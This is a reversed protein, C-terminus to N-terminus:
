GPKKELSKVRRFLADLQTFRATNRRWERVPRAPVVSGYVGAERISGTVGTMGLLTVDDAIEIHDAIGSLGGIMCRRGIRSSGAVMVGAALATDDGIEVNHAVHVQDDLKANRGIVTNKLAGRDITCGAGIEAAEGVHVGGIQPVKRWGEPGPAFGFGDAGLLAGPHVIVGDAIRTGAGISVNNAIRCHRGIEVGPGIVTCAGVQTGRGLRAGAEVVANAGVGVGDDLQADSAVVASAHIGRAIEPLPHLAMAAAAFAYYPDEVVLAVSHGPCAERDQDSLLVAGARTAGLLDRYKGGTCFTLDSEVAEDLAAISRIRRETDGEVRAGALEALEAVTYGQAQSM